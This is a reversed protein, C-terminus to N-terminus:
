TGSAAELLREKMREQQFVIKAVGPTLKFQGCHDINVLGAEVCERCFMEQGYPAEEGGASYGCLNVLWEKARDSLGTFEGQIRDFEDKAVRRYIEKAHTVASDIIHEPTLETDSNRTNDAFMAGAIQAAMQSLLKVRENM